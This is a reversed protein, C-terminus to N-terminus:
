LGFHCTMEFFDVLDCAIKFKTNISKLTVNNTAAEKGHAINNRWSVIENIEKKRDKEGLWVNFDKSWKQDFCGALEDIADSKMNRSNPWTERIYNSSRTPSRGAAHELFIEKLSQEIYGSILVCIYKAWHSQVQVEGAFGQGASIPVDKLMRKIRDRYRVRDPTPAAM